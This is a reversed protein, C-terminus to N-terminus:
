GVAATEVAGAGERATLWDAPRERLHDPEDSRQDRESDGLMPFAKLNGDREGVSMEGADRVADPIPAPDECYPGADVLVADHAADDTLRSPLAGGNGAGATITTTSM